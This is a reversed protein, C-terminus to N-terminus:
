DRKERVTGAKETTVTVKAKDYEIPKKGIKSM